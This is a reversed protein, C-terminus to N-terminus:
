PTSRGKQHVSDLSSSGFGSGPVSGLPLADSGSIARVAVFLWWGTEARVVSYRQSTYEIDVILGPEARGWKV